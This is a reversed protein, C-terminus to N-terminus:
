LALLGDTFTRFLAAFVSVFLGRHSHFEVPEACVPRLPLLLIAVAM